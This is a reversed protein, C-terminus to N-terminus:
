FGVRKSVGLMLLTHRRADPAQHPQVGGAYGGRLPCTKMTASWLRVSGEAITLM